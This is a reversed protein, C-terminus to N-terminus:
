RLCIRVGSFASVIVIMSALNIKVCACVGDVFFLESVREVLEVVRM